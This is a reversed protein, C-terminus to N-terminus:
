ISNFVFIQCQGNLQTGTLGGIVITSNLIQKTNQKFPNFCLVKVLDYKAQTQGVDKWACEM